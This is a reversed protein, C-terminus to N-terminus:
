YAFTAMYVSRSNPTSWRTGLGKGQFEGEAAVGAAFNEVQALPPYYAVENTCICDGPRVRRTVLKVDSGATLKGHLEAPDLTMHIASPQIRVISAGAKGAHERAFAVLAQRQEADAREDVYVVSKIKGADELGRFGLTDSGKVVVIVNLGSLDVGRQSGQQINWAMIAEKGALRMEANAFCPGTYVQCTRSEMYYGNLNGAQCVSPVVVALLWAFGASRLM